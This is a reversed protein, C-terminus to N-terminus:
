ESINSDAIQEMAFAIHPPWFMTQQHMWQLFLGKSLHIYLLLMVRGCVTQRLHM